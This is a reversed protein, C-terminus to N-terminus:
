VPVYGLDNTTVAKGGKFRTDQYWGLGTQALDWFFHPLSPAALDWVADGGLWIRADTDGPNFVAAWDYEHQGALVIGFKGDTGALREGTILQWQAVSEFSPNNPHSEHIADGIGKRTAFRRLADPLQVGNAAEFRAIATAAKRDEANPHVGLVVLADDLTVPRPLDSPDRGGMRTQNWYLKALRNAPPHLLERVGKASLNMRLFLAYASPEDLGAADAHTATVGLRDSCFQRWFDRVAEAQAAYGMRGLVATFAPLTLSGGGPSLEAFVGQWLAADHFSLESATVGYWYPLVLMEKEDFEVRTTGDAHVSRITAAGWRGSPGALCRSGVFLGENPTDSM